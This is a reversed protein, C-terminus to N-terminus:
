PAVFDIEEFAAVVIGRLRCEGKEPHVSAPNEVNAQTFSLGLPGLARISMLPDAAGKKISVM